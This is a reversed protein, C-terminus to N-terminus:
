YQVQVLWLLLTDGPQIPSITVVKLEDGNDVIVDGRKPVFSIEPDLYIHWDVREVESDPRVKVAFDFNKESNRPDVFLGKITHDTYTITGGAWPKNTIPASNQVKYTISRGREVIKRSALARMKAYLDAM